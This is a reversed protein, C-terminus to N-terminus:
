GNFERRMLIGDGEPCYYNKLVAKVRFGSKLYLVQARDNDIKVTLSIPTKYAEIIEAMLTTGWGYGQSEPKVAIQWISTISPLSQVIAYAIIPGFGRGKMSDFLITFVDSQTFQRLLEAPPPNEVGHFCQHDIVSIAEYVERTKEEKTLKVFGGDKV